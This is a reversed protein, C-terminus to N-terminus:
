MNVLVTFVSWNITRLLCAVLFCSLLIHTRIAPPSVRHPVQPSSTISCSRSTHGPEDPSKTLGSLILSVWTTGTPDYLLVTGLDSFLMDLNRPRRKEYNKSPVCQYMGQLQEDMNLTWTQNRQSILVPRGRTERAFSDKSLLPAMRQLGFSVFLNEQCSSLAGSVASHSGPPPPRWYGKWMPQRRAAEGQLDTPRGLVGVCDNGKVFLLKRDWRLGIMQYTRM